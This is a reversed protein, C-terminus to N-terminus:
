AEIRSPGVRHALANLERESMNLYSVVSEDVVIETMRFVNYQKEIQEVTEALKKDVFNQEGSM